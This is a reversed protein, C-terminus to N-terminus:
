GEAYDPADAQGPAPASLAPAEAGVGDVKLDGLDYKIFPAPHMQLPLSPPLDQGDQKMKIFQMALAYEYLTLAGDKDVDALTWIQHLVKSPLKSEVMSTKAARGGIKGNKNPGLKLFDTKYEEVNPAMLWHSEYASTMKAGNKIVAFPSADSGVQAMDALDIQAAENSILQLLKPTDIKLMTELAEMNKKNIRAFATFDMSKLKEQMMRPDPFDGVSLGNADAIDQYLAELNAILAKQESARGCMKTCRAGHGMSKRLHDLIFAHVKALRARKIVDNLKRLAVSRPLEALDTYIDNEESEFLRRLEDYVLPEDWFSGIYVRSVEPTDIVEKLTWMMAGYIRMLQGSPVQDAKNLIIRIKQDNGKVALIVRRLEDSITMKSVDFLLLVLDSRDAFWKAVDEFEYGRKIRQKEGALVGPSDVMVISKLVPSSLKAVEFRQLFGNGFKSLEDFPLSKDAVAANGPIRQDREGFITAVFRDTTPEPGINLGPYDRGLLHKIFTSKGTSYPGLVLVMPRSSFAANNLESSYFEHFGHEREVPLLKERYLRQLGETVLSM